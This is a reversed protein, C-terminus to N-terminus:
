CWTARTESRAESAPETRGDSRHAQAAQQRARERQRASLPAPGPRVPAVRKRRSFRLRVAQGREGRPLAGGLRRGAARTAGGLARGDQGHRLQSVDARREARLPRVDAVVRREVPRGCLLLRAALTGRSAALLDPNSTNTRGASFGSPGTPTYAAGDGLGDSLAAISAVQESTLRDKRVKTRKPRLRAAPNREILEDHEASRCWTRLRSVNDAATNASNGMGRPPAARLWDYWARVVAPTLADRHSLLSAARPWFARMKGLVVSQKQYSWEQGRDRYGGVLGGFYDLLDVPKNKRTSTGTPGFTPPLRRAYPSPRSSTAM